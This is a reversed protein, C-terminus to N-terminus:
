ALGLVYASSWFFCVILGILQYAQRRIELSFKGLSKLLSCVESVTEQEYVSGNRHMNLNNLVSCIGKIALIKHTENSSVLLKRFFPILFKSSCFRGFLFSMSDFISCSADFNKSTPVFRLWDELADVRIFDGSIIHAGISYCISHLVSCYLSCVSSNTNIATSIMGLLKQFMIWSFDRDVGIVSGFIVVLVRSALKLDLKIFHHVARRCLRDLVESLHHPVTSLMYIKLTMPSNSSVVWSCILKFCASDIELDEAECANWITFVLALDVSTWSDVCLGSYFDILATCLRSSYYFSDEIVKFVNCSLGDSLKLCEHAIRICLTQMSSDLDNYEILHLVNNLVIPIEARDQVLPISDRLLAIFGLQEELSFISVCDLILVSLQCVCAKWDLALTKSIIQQSTKSEMGESTEMSKITSLLTPLLEMSVGSRASVGFASSRIAEFVEEVFRSSSEEKSCDLLLSRLKIQLQGRFLIATRLPLQALLHVSSIFAKRSFRKIKLLTTLAAVLREPQDRMPLSQVPDDVDLMALEGEIHNLVQPDRTDRAHVLLEV